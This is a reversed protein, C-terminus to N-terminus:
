EKSHGHWCMALRGALARRAKRRCVLGLLSLSHACRGNRVYSSVFYHGVVLRTVSHDRLHESNADAVDGDVIWGDPIGHMLRLRRKSAPGCFSVDARARSGHESEPTFRIDRSLASIDGSSGDPVDALM